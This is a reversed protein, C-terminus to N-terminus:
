KLDSMIMHKSAMWFSSETSTSCLFPVQFFLIQLNIYFLYSFMFLSTIHIETVCFLFFPRTHKKKKEKFGKITKM